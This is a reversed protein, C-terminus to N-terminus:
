WWGIDASAEYEANDAVTIINTTNLRSQNYWNILMDMNDMKNCLM